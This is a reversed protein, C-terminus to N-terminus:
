LAGVPFVVRVYGPLFALLEEDFGYVENVTFSADMGLQAAFGAFIAPDSELPPWVFDSSSAMSFQFQPDRRLGRFTSQSVLLFPPVLSLCHELKIVYSNRLLPHRSSFSLSLSLSPPPRVGPSFQDFHRVCM